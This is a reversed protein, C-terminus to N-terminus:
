REGRRSPQLYRFLLATIVLDFIWSIVLFIRTAGSLHMGSSIYPVTWALAALPIALFIYPFPLYYRIRGSPGTIEAHDSRSRDDLYEEWGLGGPMRPSLKEKIYSGILILKNNNSAYVNTLAYTVVPLILLFPVRSKNSLSFSFIVGTATLELALSNWLMQQSQLIEARLATFEAQPGDSPTSNEERQPRIVKRLQRRASGM